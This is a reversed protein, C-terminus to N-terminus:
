GTTLNVRWVQPGDGNDAFACTETVGSDDPLAFAFTIGAGEAIDKLTELADELDGLGVSVTVTEDGQQSRQAAQTLQETLDNM